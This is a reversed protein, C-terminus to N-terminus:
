PQTSSSEGPLPAFPNPRGVGQPPVSVSYDQLTQYGPDTFLTKDIQLTKIQGLLSFVQAGIADTPATAQLAMPTASTSGSYYFYAVAAGIVIVAM